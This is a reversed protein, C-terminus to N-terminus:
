NPPEALPATDRTAVTEESNVDLTCAPFIMWAIAGITPPLPPPLGSLARPPPLSTDFNSSASAFALLKSAQYIEMVRGNHQGVFLGTRLLNRNQPAHGRFLAPFGRMLKVPCHPAMFCGVQAAQMRFPGLLPQGLLHPTIERIGSGSRISNNTGGSAASPM